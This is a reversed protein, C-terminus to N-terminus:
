HDSSVSRRACHVTRCAEERREKSIERRGNLFDSIRSQPAGNALDDQKLGHQEMLLRLELLAAGKAV